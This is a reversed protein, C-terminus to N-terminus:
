ALASACAISSPPCGPMAPVIAPSLVMKRAGRSPVLACSSPVSNRSCRRDALAAHPSRLRRVRTPPRRAAGGILTRRNRGRCRVGEPIHGATPPPDSRRFGSRRIGARSGFLSVATQPSPRRPSAPSPPHQTIRSGRASGQERTRTIRRRLLRLAAGELPGRRQSLRLAGLLRARRDLPARDRPAVEREELLVRWPRRSPAAM